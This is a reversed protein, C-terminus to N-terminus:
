LHSLLRIRRQTIFAKLWKRHHNYISRLNSFCMFVKFKVPYKEALYLINKLGFLGWGRFDTAPDTGQFGLKGWKKTIRKDLEEEPFSSNWLILLQAEHDPNDKDYPTSAHEKM